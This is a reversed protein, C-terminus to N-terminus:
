FFQGSLKLNNFSEIDRYKIIKAPNGGIVAFDPVNKTVVAGSGIVVGEGIKVGPVITVNAGIWVFDKIEVNKGVSMNDYPIKTTSEYNHNFAYITLGQGIHCFKGIKVYAKGPNIHTRRNLVTSEGISINSPNILTIFGPFEPSFIASNSIQNYKYYKNNYIKCFYFYIKNFLKM